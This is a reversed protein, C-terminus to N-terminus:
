VPHKCLNLQFLQLWLQIFVQPPSIFNSRHVHQHLVSTHFTNLASTSCNFFSDMFSERHRVCLSLSFTCSKWVNSMISVFILGTTADNTTAHIHYSSLSVDIECGILFTTCDVPLLLSQFLMLSPHAAPSISWSRSVSSGTAYFEWGTQHATSSSQPAGSSAVRGRVACIM